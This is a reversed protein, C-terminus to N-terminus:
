IARRLCGQLYAMWGNVDGHNVDVGEDQDGHNCHNGHNDDDVTRPIEKELSGIFVKACPQVTIGPPLMSMM